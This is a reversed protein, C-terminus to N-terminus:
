SAEPLFAPPVSLGPMGAGDAGSGDNLEDPPEYLLPDFNIALYGDGEVPLSFTGYLLLSDGCNFGYRLFSAMEEGDDSLLRIAEGGKPVAELHEPRIEIDLRVMEGNDSAVGSMAARGEFDEPCVDAAIFASLPRGDILDPTFTMGNTAAVPVTGQTFILQPIHQRVRLYALFKLAKEYADANAYFVYYQRGADSFLVKLAEEDMLTVPMESHARRERPHYTERLLIRCGEWSRMANDAIQLFLVQQNPREVAFWLNAIHIIDRYYLRGPGVLADEFEEILKAEDFVSGSPMYVLIESKVLSGRKCFAQRIASGVFGIHGQFYLIYLLGGLALALNLALNRRM